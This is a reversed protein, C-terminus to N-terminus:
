EIIMRAQQLEKVYGNLLKNTNSVLTDKLKKNKGIAEDIANRVEGCIDDWKSEITAFASERERKNLDKIMAKRLREEESDEFLSGILYGLGSGILGFVAGAGALWYKANSKMERAIENSILNIVNSIEQPHLTVNLNVNLEPKKVSVGQRSYVAVMADIRKTLEETEQALAQQAYKSAQGMFENVRKNVREEIANNLASLSVDEDQDRFQVFTSAIVDTVNDWLGRSFTEVFTSYVSENRKISEILESLDVDTGQTHLDMRAVEAVGQSITLSPDQDCSISTKDVGFGKSVLPIIFDMRSAGGTLFVGYIPAGNIHNAVFDHMADEIQKLYGDKELLENLENPQFLFKVTEDLDDDDVLEDLHISKKVKMGPKFYVEEKINRAEFLLCASLDPYKKEFEKIAEDEHKQNYIFKEVYSAGCDYGYDIPRDINNSLYTFDLTSSGMDFVVAGNKINRSLGSSTSHMGHIYAARSEKTVGFIPMGAMNAMEKYLDQSQKDWGSPTAIFVIHNKDSLIGSTKERILKYVESMFRIMLKESEGNIDVPKQKFCVYANAQKLIDPDFAKEGIFARGDPLLTVASPIVKKNNGMEIDTPTEWQPEPVDWQLPCYAASTEGHGLDIGVVYQIVNKDITSDM